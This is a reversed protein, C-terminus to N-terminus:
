KRKKNRQNAAIKEKSTMVVPATRVTSAKVDTGAVPKVDTSEARRSTGKKSGQDKM